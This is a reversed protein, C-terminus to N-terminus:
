GRLDSPRVGFFATFADSFASPSTYGVTRATTNVPEGQRILELARQMRAVTRWQHFTLGTQKPWLRRLTRASSGVALGWGALDRHDHLRDLLAFAVRRARDDVPLPLPARGTPWSPSELCRRLRDFMVSELRAREPRGHPHAGDLEDIVALLLPELPIPTPTGIPQWDRPLWHVPEHQDDSQCRERLYLSRFTCGAALALVDHLTQSPIWVASGTSLIWSRNGCDVRMAGSEPWVLQAVSHSHSGFRANPNM